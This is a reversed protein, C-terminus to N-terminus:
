TCNETEQVQFRLRHFGDDRTVADDTRQNEGKSKQAYENDVPKGSVSGCHPLVGLRQIVLAVKMMTAILPADADAELAVRVKGGVLRGQSRVRVHQQLAELERVDEPRRKAPM